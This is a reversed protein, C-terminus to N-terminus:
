TCQFDSLGERVSRDRCSFYAVVFLIVLAWDLQNNGELSNGDLKLEAVRHVHGYKM